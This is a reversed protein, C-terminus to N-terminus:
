PHCRSYFRYKREEHTADLFSGSYRGVVSGAICSCPRPYEPIELAGGDDYQPGVDSIEDDSCSDNIVM